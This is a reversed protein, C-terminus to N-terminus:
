IERSMVIVTYGDADYTDGTEAFGCAHWFRDSQPNGQVRGLRVEGIGQAKLFTLLEGILRRGLGRGQYLADLMFWGIFATDERPYARILDLVGVLDKGDFFGLFYKDVATKRPPLSQMAERLSDITPTVRMHQYYLPNGQAITLLAPLDADTLARLALSGQWSAIPLRVRELEIALVGYQEQKEPPYYAEMDRPDARSVNEPTYGCETLPLAKYLDAFSAFPHLGTVSTLVSASGDTCTFLLEDGVSILRRKEDHLRLEYRKSGDAIAAFPKPHLSMEHRM